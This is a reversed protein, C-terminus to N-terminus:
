TNDQTENATDEVPYLTFAYKKILANYHETISSPRTETEPKTRGSRAFMFGTEYQNQYAASSNNQADRTRALSSAELVADLEGATCPIDMFSFLRAFEPGPNNRLAEYTLVLDTHPLWSAYFRMMAEIGMRPDRALDEM